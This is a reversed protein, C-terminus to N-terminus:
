RVQAVKTMAFFAFTICFTHLAAWLCSVWAQGVSPPSATELCLVCSCFSVHLM